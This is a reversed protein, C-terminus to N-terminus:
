KWRAHSYRRWGLSCPLSDSMKVAGKSILTKAQSRDGDPWGQNKLPTFNLGIISRRGGILLPPAGEKNRIKLVETFHRLSFRM